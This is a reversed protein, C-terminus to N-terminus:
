LYTQLNPMAKTMVELYLMSIDLYMMGKPLRQRVKHRLAHFCHWLFSLRLLNKKLLKKMTVRKNNYIKEMQMITSTIVNVDAKLLPLVTGIKQKTNM